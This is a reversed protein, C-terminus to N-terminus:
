RPIAYCVTETPTFRYQRLYYEYRGGCVAEALDTLKYFDDRKHYVSFAMVPHNRRILEKMGTIAQYEAGEIDMKVFTVKENKLVNDLADADVASTTGSGAKEVSSSGPNSEYYLATRSDWAALNYLRIRDKFGGKYLSDRLIEFIEHDAEMGIYREWKGRYTRDFSWFTDGTYAGIDLFVEDQRFELLDEPFYQGAEDDVDAQMHYLYREEKTIKYNLIDTFIRRSKADGLRDYARQFDSVHDWIFQMDTYELDMFAFNYLFIRDEPYGYSILQKRIVDYASSAVIVACGATGFMGMLEWPPIVSLGEDAYRKYFKLANNDSFAAVKDGLGNQKM